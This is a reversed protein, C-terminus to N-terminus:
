VYNLATIGRMSRGICMYIFFATELDFKQDYFVLDLPNDHTKRNAHMDGDNKWQSGSEFRQDFYM